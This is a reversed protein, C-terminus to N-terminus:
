SPDSLSRQFTEGSREPFLDAAAAGDLEDVYVRVGEAGDPGRDLEEKRGLRRVDGALDHVDGGLDLFGWLKRRFRQRRKAALDGQHGAGGSADTLGDRASQVSVARRHDAEVDGLGGAVQLCQHFLEATADDREVDGGDVGRLPDGATQLLAVASDVDDDVVGADRAVPLQRVHVSRAPRRHQGHVQEGGLPDGGM